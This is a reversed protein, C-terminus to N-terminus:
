GVRHVRLVNPNRRLKRLVRAMHDRDKVSIIFLLTAIEPNSEPSPYVERVHHFASGIGQIFIYGSGSILVGIGTGQLIEPVLIEEM